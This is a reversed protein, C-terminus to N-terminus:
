RASMRAVLQDRLPRPDRAVDPRPLQTALLELLNSVMGEDLAIGERALATVISARFAPHTPDGGRQRWHTWLFALRDLSSLVNILDMGDGMRAIDGCRAIVAAARTVVDNTLEALTGDPPRRRALVDAGEVLEPRYETFPIEALSAALQQPTVRLGAPTTVAHRGGVGDLKLWEIFSPDGELTLLAPEDRYRSPLRLTVQAEGAGSDAQRHLRYVIM